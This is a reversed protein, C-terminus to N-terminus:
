WWCRCSLWVLVYRSELTDSNSEILWVISLTCLELFTIVYYLTYWIARKVDSVSIYCWVFSYSTMLCLAARHGSVGPLSQSATQPLSLCVFMFIWHFGLVLFIWPGYLSAFLALVITRSAMEGVRWLVLLLSGPWAFKLWVGDAGSMDEQPEKWRCTCTSYTCSIASAALSAYLVWSWGGLHAQIMLLYLQSLVLPFGGTFTFVLRLVFLERLENREKKQHVFAAHKRLLTVHRWVFALQLVHLAGMWAAERGTMADGRRRLLFIASLLQVLVLPLIILGATLSFMVDRQSFDRYLAFAQLASLSLEALHLTLSLLLYLWFSASVCRTEM